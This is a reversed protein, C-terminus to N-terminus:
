TPIKEAVGGRFEQYKVWVRGDVVKVDLSDMNRPPIKNLKTGDLDFTSAHCPCYYHRSSSQYNIKCGLHPCVDTFAIVPSDNAEPIHRLYVTGITRDKFLNWADVLDGKITFRVPTGDAPLDSLRAVPLFGDADAGLFKPRKRRIPDLSFVIGAVLPALTVLAGAVFAALKLLFGRRPPSSLAPHSPDDMM